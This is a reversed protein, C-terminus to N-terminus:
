NIWTGFVGCWLWNLLWNIKHVYCAALLIYHRYVSSFKWQPLFPNAPSPVLELAVLDHLEYDGLKTIGSTIESSEVINSSFVDIQVIVVIGCWWGKSPMLICHDTSLRDCWLNNHQWFHAAQKPCQPAPASKVQQHCTYFYYESQCSCCTKSLHRVDERTTDSLLTIVKNQIKVIMGTAGEHKGAIVKVHDGTKFFKRLQRDKFTLTGQLFWSTLWRSDWMIDRGHRMPSLSWPKHLVLCLLHFNSICVLHM